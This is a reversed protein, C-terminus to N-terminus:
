TILKLIKELLNKRDTEAFLKQFSDKELQKHLQVQRADRLAADFKSQIQGIRITFEPIAPYKVAADTLQKRIQTQRKQYEQWNQQVALQQLQVIDNELAEIDKVAAQASKLTRLKELTRCHAELKRVEAFEQDTSAYTAVSTLAKQYSFDTEPRDKLQQQLANLRKSFEQRRFKERELLKFFEKQWLHFRRKHQLYPAQKRCKELLDAVTQSEGSKIAATITKEWHRESIYILVKRTAFYLLFLLLLVGLLAASARVGSRLRMKRRKEAIEPARQSSM